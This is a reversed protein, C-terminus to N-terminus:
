EGQLRQGLYKGWNMMLKKKDMEELIKGSPVAVIYGEVKGMEPCSSHSPVEAILLLQQSGHMWKGGAVNPEEPEDCQYHRKFRKAVDETIHVRRVQNNEVLYVWTDWRGVIGGDSETVFFSLSDPAWALEALAGVGTDETELLPKRNSMVAIRVGDVIVIKRKDPSSIELKRERDIYSRISTAESSWVGPEAGFAVLMWWNSWGLIGLTILVKFTALRM